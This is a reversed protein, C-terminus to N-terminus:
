DSKKGFQLLMRGMRKEVLQYALWTLILTVVAFLLVYLVDSGPRHTRMVEVVAAHVLYASYSYTSVVNAAKTFFPWEMRVASSAAIFVAALFAATLGSDSGKVILLLVVPCVLATFNWEKKEKVALYVAIGIAFLYLFQLPRLGETYREVLRALAYLVVIGALSAHYSKVFRHYAPVILYFLVFVSITWVAGLNMWFNEEAPIWQNLLFVYRFWGIGTEDAPVGGAFSFYVAYFLIVIYYLPLIRVARKKWWSFLGHKGGQGSIRDLSQYALYGSLIFFFEVGTSGARCFQQLFGPMAINQELHVAVVWLCAFARLINLGANVKKDTM